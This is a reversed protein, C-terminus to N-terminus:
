EIKSSSFQAVEDEFTDGGLQQLQQLTTAAEEADIVSLAFGVHILVWDGPKLPEVILETSVQRLVGAISVKARGPEPIEVINAPVGLCM